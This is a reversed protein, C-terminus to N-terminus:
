SERGTQEDRERMEEALDRRVSELFGAMGAIANGKNSWDVSGMSRLGAALARLHKAALNCDAKAELLREAATTEHIIGDGM